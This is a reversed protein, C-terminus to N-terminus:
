FHSLIELCCRQTMVSSIAKSNVLAGPFETVNFKSLKQLAKIM